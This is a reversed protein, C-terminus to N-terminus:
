GPLVRGTTQPWDYNLVDAPWFGRRCLSAAVLSVTDQSQALVPLRKGGQRIVLGQQALRNLTANVTSVSCGALTALQRQTPPGHYTRWHTRLATLVAQEQRGPDRIM